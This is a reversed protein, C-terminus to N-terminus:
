RAIAHARGAWHPPIRKGAHSNTTQQAAGRLIRRHRDVIRAKLPPLGDAGELILAGSDGPTVLQPREPHARRTDGIMWQIPKPAAVDVKHDRGRIPRACVLKELIEVSRDLPEPAAM